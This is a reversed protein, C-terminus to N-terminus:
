ALENADAAGYLELGGIVRFRREWGGECITSEPFLDRLVDFMRVATRRGIHIRAAAEDLTLDEAPCM